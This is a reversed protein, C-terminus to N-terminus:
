QDVEPQVDGNAQDVYQGDEVDSDDAELSDAVATIDAEDMPDPEHEAPTPESM